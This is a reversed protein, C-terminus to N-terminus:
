IILNYILVPITLMIINDLVIEYLLILITGMNTPVPQSSGHVEHSLNAVKGLLYGGKEL